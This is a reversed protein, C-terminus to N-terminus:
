YNLFFIHCCVCMGYIFCSKVIQCCHCECGSHRYITHVFVAFEICCSLFCKFQMDSKTTYSTLILQIIAILVHIISSAKPSEAVVVRVADIVQIFFDMNAKMAEFKSSCCCAAVAIIINICVSLSGHFSMKINEESSMVVPIGM